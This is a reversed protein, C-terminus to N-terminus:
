LKERRDMSGYTEVQVEQIVEVAESISNDQEKGRLLWLVCRAYEVELSIKKHCHDRLTEVLQTRQLQPLSPVWQMALQVMAAQAKKAQGRRSM